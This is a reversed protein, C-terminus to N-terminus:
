PIPPQSASASNKEKEGTTKASTATATSGFVSPAFSPIPANATTPTNQKENTPHSKLIHWSSRSNDLKACSKHQPQELAHKSHNDKSFALNTKVTRAANKWPIARKSARQLEGNSYAHKALRSEDMVSLELEVNELQEKMNILAQYLDKRSKPLDDKRNLVVIERQITRIRQQLQAKKRELSYDAQICVLKSTNPDTDISMSSNLTTQIDLLPRRLGSLLSMSSLTDNLLVTAEDDVSKSSVILSTSFEDLNAFVNLMDYCEELKNRQCESNNGATRLLSNFYRRGELKKLTTISACNFDKEVVPMTTSNTTQQHAPLCSGGVSRDLSVSCVEVVSETKGVLGAGFVPPAAGPIPPQAAATSSAKGSSGSSASGFGAGFVPPAAGPIPPQAAATSNAKGSSGSSASGFGAGFVPPAAGPIPPQAAATSNAKGSSGSSASGFGAGFVPPAAGPIPPQAAATSSAKGSSGSSASGFGAGFVPPAFAPIPPQNAATIALKGKSLLSSNDNSSATTGHAVLVTPRHDVSRSTANVNDPKRTTLPPQNTLIVSAIRLVGTNGLICVLPGAPVDHDCVFLTRISNTSLALGTAPINNYDLCRVSM